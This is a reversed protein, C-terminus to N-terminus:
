FVCPNFVYEPATSTTPMRVFSEGLARVRLYGIAWPYVAPSAKYVCRLLWSGFPLYFSWQLVGAACAAILTMKMVRSVEDDDRTGIATSIKALAGLRWVNTLNQLYSKAGHSIAYAGMQTAGLSHSIWRAEYTMMLLLTVGVATMGTVFGLQVRRERQARQLLLAAAHHHTRVGERPPDDPEEAAGGGVLGESDVM